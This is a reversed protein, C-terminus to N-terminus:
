RLVGNKGEQRQKKRALAIDLNKQMKSDHPDQALATRFEEIAADLDGYEAYAIALSGRIKRDNPKIKLAERYHSIAGGQDGQEALVKGLNYHILFNGTTVTITHQYLSNSDRWFAAQRWSVVASAVLVAGGVLALFTRRSAAKGALDTCGWAVMICLGTLPIYTYRDAHSQFGVQILGIVPTLTFLFWFWGVALYQYRRGARIAAATILSLLVLSCAVKWLPLPHQFPYLVALDVPWLAKGIYRLYATLANDVRYRLPLTTIAQSQTFLTILCVAASCIIFPIKEVVMAAAVRQFHHLASRDGIRYRGLPWYDVLLMLVPLTVLMPKSLLAIIFFGLSLLYLASKRTLAYEAYLFLSSFGFLASLVDKREAVWAVSEVHLPHLAFMGAVFASQWLAGTHRLLFLLLIITSITHCIVSTLHHGGANAGYLQYDLMHSLWTVPHWNGNFQGRSTFATIINKGTVGSTVYPNHTVYVEDDYSVFGHSGVQAYVLLTGIVLLLCILIVTRTDPYKDSPISVTEAGYCNVQFPHSM